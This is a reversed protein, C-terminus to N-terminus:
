DSNLPSILLHMFTPRRMKFRTQVTLPVVQARISQGARDDRKGGIIRPKWSNLKKADQALWKM